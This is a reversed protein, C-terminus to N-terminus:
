VLLASCYYWHTWIKYHLLGNALESYECYNIGANLCVLRRVTCILYNRCLSMGNESTTATRSAFPGNGVTFAAVQVSYTTFNDLNRITRSLTSGSISDASGVTDPQNITHYQIIYFVLEGNIDMERPPKWTIYLENASINVATFNEPPATPVANCSFTVTLRDIAM